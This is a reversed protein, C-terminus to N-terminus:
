ALLGKLISIRMLSLMRLASQRLTSCHCNANGASAHGKITSVLPSQLEQEPDHVQLRSDEQVNKEARSKTSEKDNPSVLNEILSNTEALKKKQDQTEDSSKWSAHMNRSM